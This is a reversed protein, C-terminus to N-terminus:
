PELRGEIAFELDGPAFELRLSKRAGAALDTFRISEVWSESAGVKFRLRETEKDGSRLLVLAGRSDDVPTFHVTAINSGRGERVVRLNKVPLGTRTGGRATGAGSPDPIGGGPKEPKGGGGAAGRGPGEDTSGSVPAPRNERGTRKRARGIRLARSREGEDNEVGSGDFGRFLDDLDNVSIEEVVEIGALADILKRVERAFRNYAERASKRKADDEIRDFEFETHEPNEVSRLIESGEAGVVCVFLDFPRANNFQQLREARRTILMGNGRAIGVAKRQVDEFRLFWVLEGFGEVELEGSQEGDAYRVTRASEMRERVKDTSRGLDQNLTGSAIVEDFVDSISTADIRDDDGLIVVLNHQHVAFYFNAVVALKIQMWLDVTSESGFPALVFVSTGVKPDEHDRRLRGPWEPVRADLLPGCTDSEGYFGTAVTSEREPGGLLQLPLSQLISKGQFRSEVGEGSHVRTFYYVTRLDSAAFPARSGHGFSGLASASSKATIGSGKTLALWAGSPPSMPDDEIPGTLGTTNSDHVGLVTVERSRLIGRATRYFSTGKDGTEVTSAAQLFADLDVLGDIQDVPVTDLTLRVVVPAGEDHRADLSNQIMERVLAQLREGRFMDIAPVNFGERQGNGASPFRWGIEDSM